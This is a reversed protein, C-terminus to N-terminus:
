PLIEGEIVTDDTEFGGGASLSWSWNRFGGECFTFFSLFFIPLPAVAGVVAAVVSM